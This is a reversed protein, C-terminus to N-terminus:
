TSMRQEIRTGLESPCQVQLMWEGERKFPVRLGDLAEALIIPREFDVVKRLWYVSSGLTCDVYIPQTETRRQEVSETEQVVHECDSSREGLFVHNGEPVEEERVGKCRDARAALTGYLDDGGYEVEVFQSSRVNMKALAGALILRM